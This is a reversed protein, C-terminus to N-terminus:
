DNRLNNQNSPALANAATTAGGASLGRAEASWTQPNNLLKIVRVRESAPLTELLHRANEPSKSAETLYQMTKKGIKNELINLAKNTTAAVASLYSPLRFNSLNELLVEKLAEQGGEVQSKVKADRVVKNAETKLTALTSESLETAVNYNGKGLFKEVVDPSENTVLKVFKDKDNKWLELAKGSLRKEALQQMGKTYDALYQKWGTGGSAEIADDLLPKIDSLVGAALNRQATADMGPRLRQIAANVSNKRIAELARADIIGNKATWQAIDKAVNDVAGTIIDNGAYEPNAKVRTINNILSASELPKVGNARLTDAAAQAFRSGQGLDLSANAAQSAWEDAKVALEGAYSHRAAGVPLNRKIMDLRAWAEAANGASILERVKQVEAAAEDSLKGAQAEYDAVQKGLNARKLAEERQPGTLDNLAKKSAEISGKAEAATNGGALKALANLSVEGQSEKLANLFRPDRKSARDILAQWTPSNIDATAQAASINEGKAARLANLVLPLDPGIADRAIQAAKNQPIAFIDKAKGALYGIGKGVLQGGLELTSGEAINKLPETVYEINARPKKVGMAVDAAELGEKAMGYGIGAGVAGGSVPNVILTPSAVTGAATGLIGGAIAGGAEILPAVYPRAETYIKQGTSLEQRPAPIGGDAYVEVPPLSKEDTMWAGGVKYAKVGQANTASQEIPKWEGGVLAVRAGTEPNTATQIPM